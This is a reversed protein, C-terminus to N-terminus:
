DQNEIWEIAKTLADDAPVHPAIPANGYTRGTRDAMVATTIALRAGGPLAFTQNATAFGATPAGFSRARPAGLFSVLVAEGSSATTGDTLLAVPGHQPRPVRHLRFTKRTGNYVHRRRVGWGTSEGEHGVFRGHEGEGLLPAVVTLMPHMDGGRNGRLDVVWGAPREGILGRLVKLGARVYAHGHRAHTQPLRLCATTGVLQGTPPGSRPPAAAREATILHTHPNGLTAIVHRIADDADEIAHAEASLVAWDVRDREISHRRLLDLARGVDARGSSM